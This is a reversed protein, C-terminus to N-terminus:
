GLCRTRWVMVGLLPILHPFLDFSIFILPHTRHREFLNLSSHPHVSYYCTVLLSISPNYTTPCTTTYLHTFLYIPLGLVFGDECLILNM